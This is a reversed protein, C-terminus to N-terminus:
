SRNVRHGDWDWISEKVAGTMAGRIAGSKVWEQCISEPSGDEALLPYPVDHMVARMKEGPDVTKWRRRTPRRELDHIDVLVVKLPRDTKTFYETKMRYEELGDPMTLVLSELKPISAVRHWFDPVGDPNYLALRSTTTIWVALATLCISRTACM